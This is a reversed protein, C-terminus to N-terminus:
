NVHQGRRRTLFRWRSHERRGITGIFADTAHRQNASKPDIYKAKMNLLAGVPTTTPRARGSFTGVQSQRLEPQRNEIQRISRAM